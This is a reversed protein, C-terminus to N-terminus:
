DLKTMFRDLGEQRLSKVRSLEISRRLRQLNIMDEREHLLHIMQSNDTITKLATLVKGQNGLFTRELWMTM